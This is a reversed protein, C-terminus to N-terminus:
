VEDPNTLHPESAPIKLYSELAVDVKEIVAPVSHDNVPQFQEELSDAVAEAKESLQTVEQVRIDLAELEGRVVIEPMQKGLNKVLLRVCREEPLYFTHFSVSKKGDISRLASVTARFGDATSHVVM